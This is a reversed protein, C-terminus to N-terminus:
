MTLAEEVIITGIMGPHYYCHYTYTGAKKFRQVFSAGPKMTGTGWTNDDATATHNVTDNNTFKVTQGAYITVVNSLSYTNGTEFAMSEISIPAFFTLGKDDTISASQGIRSSVIGDGNGIDDSTLTNGKTYNGFYADAVDDINKNWNPGYLKVADAESSVWRLEGGQFVMYTKPDSNIKIMKVGPRYTVNGGMQIMALDADSIMKVTSFDTYWTFYTKDNPFVYRFGDEGMYYVSSYTVGRILDGPSATTTAAHVRNSLGMSLSLGMLTLVALSRNGFSMM